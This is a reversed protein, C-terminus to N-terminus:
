SVCVMYWMLIHIYLAQHKNTVLLPAPFQRVIVWQQRGQQCTGAQTWVMRVQIQGGRGDPQLVHGAYLSRAGAVACVHDTERRLGMGEYRYGTRHRWLRNDVTHRLLFLLRDPLGMRGLSYVDDRRRLHLRCDHHPMNINSRDSADSLCLCWTKIWLMCSGCKREMYCYNKRTCTLYTLTNRFRMYCVTAIAGHDVLECIFHKWYDILTNTASIRDYNSHCAAACMLVLLTWVETASAATLM